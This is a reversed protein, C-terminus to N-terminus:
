PAGKLAQAIQWDLVKKGQVAWGPPKVQIWHMLLEPPERHEMSVAGDELRAPSVGTLRTLGGPYPYSREYRARATLVSAAIRTTRMAGRRAEDGQEIIPSVEDFQVRLWREHGDPFVVGLRYSGGFRRHADIAPDTRYASRVFGSLEDFTAAVQQELLEPAYSRFLM